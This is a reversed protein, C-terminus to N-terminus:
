RKRALETGVSRSGYGGWKGDLTGDSKIEYGVFGCKQGGVGVAVADGQRIGFGSLSGGTQWQFEYGAGSKTVGLTGKYPKGDPNKGEVSYKGDLDTGSTRTAKETEGTNTGWYGAKGDLSGDSGIRYLVVGCGRGNDGEAFAVGVANGNRVGVGDYKNTGSEWSFQYVDGRNAVVLTGKYAGGGGENMGSVDYTGAIESTSSTSSAATTSTTANTTASTTNGSSTSDGSLSNCGLGAILLAAIAFGSSLFSQTNKVPSTEQSLNNSM